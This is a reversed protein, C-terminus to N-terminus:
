CQLQMQIEFNKNRIWSGHYKKFNYQNKLYHLCIKLVEVFGNCILTFLIEKNLRAYVRVDSLLTSFVIFLM